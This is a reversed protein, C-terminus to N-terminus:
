LVLLGSSVAYWVLGAAALVLGGIVLAARIYRLRHRRALHRRARALAQDFAHPLNEEADPDNESLLKLGLEVTYHVSLDELCSPCPDLHALSAELDADSLTGAIFPTICNQAERCDMTRSM